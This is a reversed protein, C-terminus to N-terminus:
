WLLKQSCCLIPRFLAAGPLPLLQMPLPAPSCQYVGGDSGVCPQAGAGRWPAQPTQACLPIAVMLVGFAVTLASKSQM